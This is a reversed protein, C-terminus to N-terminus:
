NVVDLGVAVVSCVVTVWVVYVSLDKETRIVPDVISRLRSPFPM